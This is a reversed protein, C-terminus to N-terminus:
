STFYNKLSREREEPTKDYVLSLCENLMPKIKKLPIGQYTFKKNDFNKEFNIKFNRINKTDMEMGRIMAHSHALKLLETIMCTGQRDMWFHGQSSHLYKGPLNASAMTYDIIEDENLLNYIGDPNEKINLFDRVRKDQALKSYWGNIHIGGIWDQGGPMILKTGKSVTDIFDGNLGGLIGSEIEAYSRKGPNAYITRPLFGSKFIAKDDGVGPGREERIFQDQLKPNKQLSITGPHSKIEEWTYAGKAIDELPLNKRIIIGLNELVNLRRNHSMNNLTELTGKYNISSLDSIDAGYEQLKQMDVVHCEGGGPQHGYKKFGKDRIGRFTDMSSTFRFGRMWSLMHSRLGKLCSMNNLTKTKNNKFIIYDQRKNLSAINEEIGKLFNEQFMISADIYSQTRNQFKTKTFNKRLQNVLDKSNKQVIDRLFYKKLKAPDANAIANLGHFLTTNPYQKEFAGHAMVAHGEMSGINFIQGMSKDILFYSRKRTTAIIDHM